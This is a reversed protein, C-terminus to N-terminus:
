YIVVKLRMFVPMARLVAVNGGVSGASATYSDTWTLMDPSTQVIYSAYSPDRAHYFTFLLDSGAVVVMSTPFGTTTISLPDTDLAYELDNTIGDSDPDGTLSFDAGAGAFNVSTVWQDYSLASSIAASSKIYTPGSYSTHHALSIINTDIQTPVYGWDGLHNRGMTWMSGDTKKFLTYNVEGYIPGMTAVEVVDSDIMVPSSKSINTGDGLAGWFNYGMGWLTGDTKIFMANGIGVSVSIVNTAIQVPSQKSITTGDGLQGYFNGGTAWLTGDTKIFMTRSSTVSVSVVNTAIQVPSLRDTTTGDGLQGYTNNGVGWLTDDNKVFMTHWHGTSVSAVNTAIQVPSQRDTTTGDGLQGYYNYGVGWLTGDTKIFM